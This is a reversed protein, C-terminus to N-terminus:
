LFTVHQSPLALIKTKRGVEEEDEEEYKHASM